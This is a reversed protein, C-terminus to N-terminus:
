MDNSEPVTFRGPCRVHNVNGSVFKKLNDSELGAHWVLGGGASASLLGLPMPM